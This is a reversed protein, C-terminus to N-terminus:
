PIEDIATLVAEATLVVHQEVLEACAEARRALALDLIQRHQEALRKQVTKSPRAFRRYRDFQDGLTLCFRQTWPSDCAAILAWHFSRHAQEWNQAREDFQPAALIEEPAGLRELRRHALVLQDEWEEDGLRVSHLTAEPELKRRLNFIDRLESRDLAPVRFGRNAEQILLKEAALKSLAERLPSAGVDYRERLEILRLWRGPEFVGTLIDRRLRDAVLFSDTEAKPKALPAVTM